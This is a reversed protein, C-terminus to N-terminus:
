SSRTFSVPDTFVVHMGIPDFMVNANHMDIRAIDQFFRVITRAAATCGEGYTADWIEQKSPLHMFSRKTLSDEMCWSKFMRAFDDCGNYDEISVYEPMVVFYADACSEIHLIKPYFKNPRDRCFAAYTAGSDEKKLGVKIAYGELEPHSVVISFYGGGLYDFATGTCLDVADRAYDDEHRMGSLQDQIEETALKAKLEAILKQAIEINLM